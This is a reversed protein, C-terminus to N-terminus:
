SGREPPYRKIQPWAASAMEADDVKTAVAEEKEDLQCLLELFLWPMPKQVTREGERQLREGALALM